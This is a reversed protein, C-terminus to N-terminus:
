YLKEYKVQKLDEKREKGSVLSEKHYTWFDPKRTALIVRYLDSFEIRSIQKREYIKVIFKSIEEKYNESNDKATIEFTINYVDQLKAITQLNLLKDGQYLKTVFSASTGIAEAIEKKKIPKKTSIRELESLFRFM